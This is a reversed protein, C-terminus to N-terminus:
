YRHRRRRNDRRSRSYRRNSGSGYGGYSHGSPGGYSYGEYHHRRESRGHHEESMDVESNIEQIEQDTEQIESERGIKLRLNGRFLGTYSNKLEYTKGPEIEPIMDNWLPVTVIGTEDGVVASAVRNLSGDRRSTVERADSKEIVKFSININSMRPELEAVKVEKVEAESNMHIVDTACLLM